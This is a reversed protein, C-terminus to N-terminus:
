QGGTPAAGTPPSAPAAGPATPAPAAPTPATGTATGPAPTTTAPAAPAAGTPTPASESAPPTPALVSPPVPQSPSAGLSTGVLRLGDVIPRVRRTAAQRLDERAAKVKVEYQAQDQELDQSATRIDGQLRVLKDAVDSPVGSPSPTAATVIGEAAKNLSDIAGEVNPESQDLDRLAKEVRNQVVGLQSSLSALEKQRRAEAERSEQRYKLWVGAVLLAVVVLIIAVWILGSGGPRRPATAPLDDDDDLGSPPAPKPRVAAKRPRQAPKKPADDESTPDDDLTKDTGDPM